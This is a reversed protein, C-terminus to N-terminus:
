HLLRPLIRSLVEVVFPWNHVAWYGVGLAVIGLIYLILQLGEPLSELWNFLTGLWDRGKM